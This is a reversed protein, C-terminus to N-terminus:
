SSQIIRFLFDQVNANIASASLSGRDRLKNTVFESMDVCYMYFPRVIGDTVRYSPAMNGSAITHLQTAMCIM